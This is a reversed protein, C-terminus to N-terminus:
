VSLVINSVGINLLDWNRLKQALYRVTIILLVDPQGNCELFIECFPGLEEIRFLGSVNM